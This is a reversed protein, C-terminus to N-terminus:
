WGLWQRLASLPRRLAVYVLPAWGGHLRVTGLQGIRPLSQDPSFVAKVKYALYGEHTPEARYAVSEVQAQFSHLPAGQLYLTLADGPAVPVLDAAPMWAVLEVKAPDALLLVREGLTVSKGIWDNADAFVAIGARDAKVQVRALQDANYDMELTREQVRGRRQTLEARNKDSTVAAQASQRYEEQATDVAKRALELRARLATTDLSFLAAGPQVQQNPRVVFRDIVGDLPARVMFADRPMVEAQALATLRVPFLAVLAVGALLWWRRRPLRLSQWLRDRWAAPPRLAHLAHGYAHALEKLLAEEHAQWPTDRALLLSGMAPHEAAPLPLWLVHAPWWHEWEEALGAPLRARVIEGTASQQAALHRCLATVWQVYPAQPDVQPPGSVAAVSGLGSASWFVAQRYPLLQLTENVMVFGLAPASAAERARRQLQLLNVLPASRDPANM